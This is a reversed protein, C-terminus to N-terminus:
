AGWKSRLRGFAEKPSLLPSRRYAMRAPIILRVSTGGGARPGIELDGELKRARDRMGTLGWHGHRGKVAIEPPIGRGDDEVRLELSSAKYVLTAQVWTAEAHHFANLVAERAVKFLEDSLLLQLERPEGVIEVSYRVEGLSQEHVLSQLGADIELGSARLDRVSDRGENMLREARELAQEMRTALPTEPPIQFSIGQFLLILGQVGQLLTDHLERAIRERESLREALLNRLRETVLRLRIRYLIWLLVAGASWALVRFWSTQYFAPAIRFTLVAPALSPVGDENTAEVEFRYAGPALGTFYAAQRAGGAQWESDFGILRYRYRNGNEMTLSPATYSIALTRVHPPLLTGNSPPYTRGDAEVGQLAVTPPQHNVPLHAPDLWAVGSATSFWIRGDNALVASPLPRIQPAMGPLGDGFSFVKVAGRHSSSNKIAAVDEPAIRLVATLGHIWLAGDSTRVLGAIGKLLDDRDTFVKHWEGSFFLLLGQRGGAWTFAGDSAMAQVDGSKMAVTDFTRRNGHDLVILATHYSIWFRDADDQLFAIAYETDNAGPRTFHFWEGQEYRFVGFRVVSVWLTGDHDRGIAQIDSSGQVKEPLRLKSFHGNQLHWLFPSSGFWTSQDRDHFAATVDAPGQVIPLLRNDATVEELAHTRVGAWVGGPSTALLTGPSDALAPVGTLKGTRFRELGKTTGVWVNGERDEYVSHLFASQLGDARDFVDHRLPADIAQTLSAHTFRNLGHGYTVVWLDGSQGFIMHGHPIDTTISARGRGAVDLPSMGLASVWIWFGGDSAVALDEVNGSFKQTFQKADATKCFVGGDTTFCLQGSRDRLLNAAPRSPQGSSPWIREWKTGSLQYVGASSAAWMAGDQGARLSYVTNGTLADGAGNFRQLPEGDRLLLVGNRRTGVWLGNSPSATLATVDWSGEASTGLSISTFTKGDFRFLGQPSGLWLFGDSTQAIDSINAPSGDSLRWVSHQTQTLQTDLPLAYLRRDRFGVLLLLLLLRLKISDPRCLSMWGNQWDLHPSPRVWELLM